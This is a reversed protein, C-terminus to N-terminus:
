GLAAAPAQAKGTFVPGLIESEELGRNVDLGTLSWDHVPLSLPRLLHEHFRTPWRVGFRPVHAVTDVEAIAGRTSDLGNLTFRARRMLHEGRDIYLAVQDGESLGLGPAIRARLIDCTYERGDQILRESGAIDLIMSKGGSWAGALLLPGLLFLSYGDSVLAAAARRDAETAVGDNYWVSISGQDGRGPRRAVQKHGAPGAHAQGTLDRSPILREESRARFTSDVLVPQLSGVVPRWVGEYRLSLDRIAGFAAMGHAAASVDLLARAEPSTASATSSPLPSACGQLAPLTMASLFLRRGPDFPRM